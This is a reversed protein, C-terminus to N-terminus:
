CGTPMGFKETGATMSAVPKYGAAQIAMFRVQFVLSACITEAAVQSMM